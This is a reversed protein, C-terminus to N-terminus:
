EEDYEGKEEVEDMYKLFTEELNKTGHKKILEKPTGLATLLGQKMVAIRGCLYEIEDMYHSTLVITVGEEQLKKLYEWIKRRAKPDLGTTLEDLFVLRPFPILALVIALRQKQGGSLQAVFSEKKAELGFDILLSSWDAAKSYLSATSECVEKVKIKDQFKTEQFQVGVMNFLKKRVSSSANVPNYGLVSISGEDPVRIGLISEITTTKGCGNEGIIGFIEGEMVEFSIGRVAEVTKYRKQLNRVSLVPLKVQSM